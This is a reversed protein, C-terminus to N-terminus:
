DDAALKFCAKELRGKLDKLKGSLDRLSREDFDTFIFDNLMQRRPCLKLIERRATETISLLVVRADDTSIARRMFGQKELAQTQTTIFSRDVHLRRAAEGVSVGNGNDLDSVAMLILWQPGSVGLIEAWAYRISEFQMYVSILDWVFNEILDHKRSAQSPSTGDKQASRDVRAGKHSVSRSSM